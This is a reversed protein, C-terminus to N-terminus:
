HSPEPTPLPPQKGTNISIQASNAKFIHNLHPELEGLGYTTSYAWFNEFISDKVYGVKGNGGPFTKIMLMQTCEFIYIDRMTINSIQAENAM